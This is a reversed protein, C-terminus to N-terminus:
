KSAWHECLVGNCLLWQISVMHNLYLGIMLAQEAWGIIMELRGHM